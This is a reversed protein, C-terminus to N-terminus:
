QLKIFYDSQNNCTQGQLCSYIVRHKVLLSLFFNHGLVSHMPGLVFPFSLMSVFLQFNPNAVQTVVRIIGYNDCQICISRAFGKKINPKM